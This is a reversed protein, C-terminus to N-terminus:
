SNSEIKKVYDRINRGIAGAGLTIVFAKEKRLKDLLSEVEQWNNVLTPRGIENGLKDSSIGPIPAESAPYIPLLILDQLNQFCLKFQDWCDRTRSYRHPEFIVVLKESNLKLATKLVVEIETPHHAYDDVIKFGNKEYLTEFRRGVGKFSSVAASIVGLDDILQHAVTIAGLANLINHDGPLSLDVSSAKEGRFYLDFRSSRETFEVNRAEYDCKTEIGFTRYPKKTKERLIRLKEDHINFANIGYFPVKNSFEEFAEFIKDENGYFDLHDNDINTIVSLVPNLYLFSGDSEDAEVVIFESKGLQANGGLNQVVGGIVHTPDVNLHHLITALISSTTTKGHTGAVAIGYKLRMLEALMEARRIQPIKLDRAKQIEPNDEPVATSYVVVSTEQNIHDAHHGQFVKGGLREISKTRDNASLDSGQVQYGMRLLIEAIGSMGIGGIGIFHIHTKEKNRFM